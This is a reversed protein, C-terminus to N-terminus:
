ELNEPSTCGAKSNGGVRKKVWLWEEDTILLGLSGLMQEVDVQIELHMPHSNKDEPAGVKLVLRGNDNLHEAITALAVEPHPIHELVDICIITDYKEPLGEKTLDITRIKLGRKRFLWEAFEFTKGRIDAYTVNLGKEVLRASLDGIGGGYDLVNGFAIQAIKDRLKKERRQMHWYALECIYFPTIEYFRQIEEETKPSLATWLMASLKKGLPLMRIVESERLNLYETVDRLLRKDLVLQYDREFISRYITGLLDKLMRPAYRRTLTQM